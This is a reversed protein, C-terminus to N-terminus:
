KIGDDVKISYSNEYNGTITITYHHGPHAYFCRECKSGCNVRWYDPRDVIVKITYTKGISLAGSCGPISIWNDGWKRSIGCTPNNRFGPEYEYSGKYTFRITATPTAKDILYKKLPFGCHICTEAQDSVDKGFQWSNM